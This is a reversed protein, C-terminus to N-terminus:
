ELGTLAELADQWDDVREEGKEPPANALVIVAAVSVAHSPYIRQGGGSKREHILHDKRCSLELAVRHYIDDGTLEAAEPADAARAELGAAIGCALWTGLCVRVVSRMTM